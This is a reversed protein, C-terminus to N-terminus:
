MLFVDNQEYIVIFVIRTKVKLMERQPHLFLARHMGLKLSCRISLIHFKVHTFANFLYFNQAKDSKTGLNVLVNSKM